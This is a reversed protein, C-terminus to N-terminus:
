SEMVYTGETVLRTVLLDEPTDPSDNDVLTLTLEDGDLEWAYTYMCGPCGENESTTVLDGDADYALSGFDGVEPGAAETQLQSWEDDAFRLTFTTEGDPGLFEQALADPLGLESAEALTAVKSYDGAPIRDSTGTTQEEDPAAAKGPSSDDGCGALLPATFLITILALRTRRM